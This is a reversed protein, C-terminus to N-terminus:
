SHLSQPGKPHYPHAHDDQGSKVMNLAHLRADCKHGHVECRFHQSLIETSLSGPPVLCGLQPGLGQVGRLGWM